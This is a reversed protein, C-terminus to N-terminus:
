AERDNNEVLFHPWNEIRPTTGTGQAAIPPV